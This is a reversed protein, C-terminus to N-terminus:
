QRRRRRSFLPRLAQFDGETGLRHSGIAVWAHAAFGNETRAGIQLSALIGRSRLYRTAAASRTLCSSWPLRSTRLFNHWVLDLERGVDSAHDGTNGDTGTPMALLHRCAASFGQLRLRLATATVLLASEILVPPRLKM